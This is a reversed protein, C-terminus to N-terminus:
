PRGTRDEQHLRSGIGRRTVGLRALIRFGVEGQAEVRGTLRSGRSSEVELHIELESLADRYIDTCTKGLRCQVIIADPLVTQRLWSKERKSEGRLAIHTRREILRRLTEDLEGRDVYSDTLVENSV